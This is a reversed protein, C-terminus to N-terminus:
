LGTPAVGQAAGAAGQAAGAAGQVAGAGGQATAGLSQNLLSMEFAVREARQRQDFASLQARFAPNRQVTAMQRQRMEFQCEQLEIPDVFEFPSNGCQDEVEQEQGFQDTFKFQGFTDVHVRLNPNSTLIENAIPIFQRNAPFANPNNLGPGFFFQKMPGFDAHPNPVPAPAPALAAAAGTGTAPAIARAAPAPAAAGINVQPQTGSILQQPAALAASCMLLCVIIKM